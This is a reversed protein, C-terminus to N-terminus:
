SKLAIPSPRVLRRSFGDMERCMDGMGELAHLSRVGNWTCGWCNIVEQCDM